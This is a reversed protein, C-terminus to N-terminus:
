KQSELGKEENVQEKKEYTPSNTALKEKVRPNWIMIEDIILEKITRIKLPIDEFDFNIKKHRVEAEEDRVSRM